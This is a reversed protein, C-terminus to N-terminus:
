LKGKSTNPPKSNLATTTHVASVYVVGSHRDQIETRSSRLRGNMSITNSVIRLQTGQVAPRYWILNMSQSVGTGDTGTAVGLAVLASVSCPDILYAACGGHLTGYVNCMDRTVEIECVTEAEKRGTSDTLGYVNVVALRLNCGIAAGFSTEPQGIFHAFIEACRKKQAPTINGEISSYDDSPILASSTTLLM